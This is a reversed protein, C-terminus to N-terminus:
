RCFELPTKCFRSFDGGFQEADSKLAGYHLASLGETASTSRTTLGAWLMTSVVGEM